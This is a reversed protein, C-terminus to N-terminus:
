TATNQSSVSPIFTRGIGATPSNPATVIWSYFVQGVIGDAPSEAVWAAATGIQTRQYVGKYVNRFHTYEGDWELAALDDRTLKRIQINELPTESLVNTSHDTM